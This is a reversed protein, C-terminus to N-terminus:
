RVVVVPQDERMTETTGDEYELKMLPAGDRPKRGQVGMVRAVTVVVKDGKRLKAALIRSFRMAAANFLPVASDRSPM